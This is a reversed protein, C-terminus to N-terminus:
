SSESNSGRLHAFVLKLGKASFYRVGSVKALKQVKVRLLCNVM